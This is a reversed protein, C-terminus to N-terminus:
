EAEPEAEAAPAEAGEVAEGAEAEAPAEGLDAEIQEATPAALVHLVLADPDTVLTTGSPLAIDKAHVATGIEMGEVDVDVGDPLNTAEAEVAIQVLQQDLLGGSFVEGSVRVPIEVTVKEGRRVEILDVHEIFGTIANRQVAKPLALLSKGGLGAIGFLANPTKLAIMLDHGPLTFHRNEAGHGYMVAPVRGARRTARAAGKGFETRPEAEIRVEPM